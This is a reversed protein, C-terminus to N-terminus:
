AKDGKKQEAGVPGVQPRPVVAAAVRERGRCDAELAHDVQRAADARPHRQNAVLSPPAELSREDRNTSPDGLEPDPSTVASGDVNGTGVYNYAQDQFRNRVRSSLLGVSLDHAINGTTFKGKLKVQAATLRRRENESRFFAEVFLTAIAM